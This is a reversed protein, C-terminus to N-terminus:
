SNFEQEFLLTKFQDVSYHSETNAKNDWYVKVKCLESIAEGFDKRFTNWCTTIDEGTITKVRNNLYFDCTIM